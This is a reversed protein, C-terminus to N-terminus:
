SKTEIHPTYAEPEDPLEVKVWEYYGFTPSGFEPLEADKIYQQHWVRGKDDLYETPYDDGVSVIQVIKIKSM